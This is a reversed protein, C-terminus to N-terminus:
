LRMPTRRRDWVPPNHSRAPAFRGIHYPRVAMAFPTRSHISSPEDARHRRADNRYWDNRARLFHCGDPSDSDQVDTRRLGLGLPVLVKRRQASEPPHLALVEE